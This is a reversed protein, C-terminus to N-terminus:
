KPNLKCIGKLSGGLGTREMLLTITNVFDRRGDRGNMGGEGVGWGGQKFLTIVWHEAHVLEKQGRLTIAQNWTHALKHADNNLYQTCTFM